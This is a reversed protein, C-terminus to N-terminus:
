AEKNAKKIDRNKGNTTQNKQNEKENKTEQKGHRNILGIGQNNKVRHRAEM